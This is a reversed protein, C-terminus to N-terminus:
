ARRARVLAAHRRWGGAHLVAEGGYGPQGLIADRRAVFLKTDLESCGAAAADM